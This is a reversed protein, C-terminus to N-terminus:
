PTAYLGDCWSLLDHGWQLLDVSRIFEYWDLDCWSLLDHGWQLTSM